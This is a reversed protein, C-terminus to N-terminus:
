GIYRLSKADAQKGPAQNRATEALQLSEFEVGWEAVQREPNHKLQTARGPSPEIKERAYQVTAQAMRALDTADGADGFIPKVAATVM